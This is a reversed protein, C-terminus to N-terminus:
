QRAALDDLCRCLIVILEDAAAVISCETQIVETAHLDACRGCFTAVFVVNFVLDSVDADIAGLAICDYFATLCVLHLKFIAYVLLQNRCQFTM